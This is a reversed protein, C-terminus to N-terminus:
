VDSKFSKPKSNNHYIKTPEDNYENAFYSAIHQTDVAEVARIM